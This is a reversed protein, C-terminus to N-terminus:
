MALLIGLMLAFLVVILFNSAIGGLLLRRWLKSTRRKTAFHCLIGILLLVATAVAAAPELFLMGVIGIGLVAMVIFNLYLVVAVVAAAIDWPNNVGLSKREKM